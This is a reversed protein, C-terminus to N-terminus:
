QELFIKLIKSAESASYVEADNYFEMTKGRNGKGLGYSVRIYVPTQYNLKALKNMFRRVFASYYKTGGQKLYFRKKLEMAETLKYFRDGAGTGVLM